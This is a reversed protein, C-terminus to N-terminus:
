GGLKKDIMEEVKQQTTYSWQPEVFRTGDWTFTVLDFEEGKPEGPKARRDPRQYHEIWTLSAPDIAYKQAVQTAIEEAANTVSPGSALDTAIVVTKRPIQYIRIRCSGRRRLGDTFTFTTDLVQVQNDGEPSHEVKM